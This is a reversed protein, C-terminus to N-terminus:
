LIKKTIIKLYATQYAILAYAAAHSKNFGYEAFPKIKQFIFSAIDKKIGNNIAGKIFKEEQKEVEKRKKKGNSKEFYRSGWATFGALVQAIQM